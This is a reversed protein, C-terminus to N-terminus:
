HSWTMGSVSPASRIVHACNPPQYGVSGRKESRGTERVHSVKLNRIPLVLKFISLTESALRLLINILM